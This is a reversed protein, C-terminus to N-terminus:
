TQHTKLPALGLHSDADPVNTTADVVKSLTDLAGFLKDVTTGDEIKKTNM